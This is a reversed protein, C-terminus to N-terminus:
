EVNAAGAGLRVFTNVHIIDDADCSGIVLFTGVINVYTIVIYLRLSTLIHENHIINAKQLYYWYKKRIHEDVARTKVDVDMHKKEM